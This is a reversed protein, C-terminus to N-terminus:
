ADTGEVGEVAIVDPLDRVDTIVGLGDETERTLDVVRLAEVRLAGKRLAVMRVSSEHVCGSALPGIRLEATLSLIDTDREIGQSHQLAYVINEDCIAQAMDVDKDEGPGTHRRESPHFSATSSKPAHRRTFADKTTTARPIRPLPILALKAPHPTANRVFITWTFPQNVLVPISPATVTITLGVNRTTTTLTPTTSASPQQAFPLSTPRKQRNIPLSPPGFSPNLAQSFDINTSWTISISSICVPSVLIKANISIDLTGTNSAQPLVPLGPGILKQSQQLKYMFTICDKSLCKIPLAMSLLDIVKGTPMSVKALELMVELRVFPTVEFDLSVVTEFSGSPTPMRTFRTRASVAPVIPITRPVLARANIAKAEAPVHPLVKELRSAALYPPNDKFGKVNRLPEFINHELPRFSPLYHFKTDNLNSADPPLTASAIISIAPNQFRIRPRNLIVSTEWLVLVLVNGDEDKDDGKVLIVPDDTKELRVSYVLDRASGPGDPLGQSSPANLAWVDVKVDLKSLLTRLVDEPISALQLVVHVTLKEDLVDRILIISCRFLILQKGFFLLKRQKIHLLSPHDQDEDGEPDDLIDPISSQTDQPVFADLVARKLADQEPISTTM